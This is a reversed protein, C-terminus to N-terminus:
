EIPESQITASVARVRPARRGDAAGAPAEAEATAITVVAREPTRAFVCLTRADDRCPEVAFIRFEALSLRRLSATGAACNAPEGCDAPVLGEPHAVAVAEFVALAFAYEDLSAERGAGFSWYGLSRKDAGHASGACAAQQAARAAADLALLGPHVDLLLYEHTTGSYDRVLPTAEDHPESQWRFGVFATDVECVGTRDTSRPTAIFEVIVGQWKHRGHAISAEVFAAGSEGFLARALQNPPTARLTAETMVSDQARAGEPALVLAAFAVARIM